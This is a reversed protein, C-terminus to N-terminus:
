NQFTINANEHLGFVEPNEVLPLEEIYKMYVDILGNTPAYYIGSESFRYSDELIEPNSYKKLLTKLCRRDWDDTVRGGYNIDGFVYLMADWPIEEQEDLFIKLMTFSTELDSDNFDYRINWGLPGFKRREQLIAHFFSLGFILKKWENPKKCENLFVDPNTFNQYPVNLAEQEIGRLGMGANVNGQAVGMQQAYQQQGAQGMLGAGQFLQGQAQNYQNQANQFANQSGTAQINSLQNNLNRQAESRMLANRTGGLGGTRAASANMGPISRQYDSIAQNKQTNVVNQMYPSMYQQAAANDFTNTAGIGSLAGAQNTFGSPALQQTQQYGQTQLPNFEATQQGTYQQYPASTLSQAKGLLETAFPMLEAPITNQTVTTNTPQSSGGSSM